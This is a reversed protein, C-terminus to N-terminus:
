AASERAAIARDIEVGGCPFRDLCAMSEELSRECFAPRDVAHVGAKALECIRADALGIELRQLAVEDQRMARPRPRLEGVFGNAEHQRELDDAQSASMGAHP